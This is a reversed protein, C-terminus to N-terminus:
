KRSNYYQEEIFFSSLGVREVFLYGQTELYNKVLSDGNEINMDWEEVCIVRPRITIWDNSELVNLDAGEVDITLFTPESPLIKPSIDKLAVVKMPIIRRLRANRETQATIAYEEQTTSYVYPHIEYFDVDHTASGVLARIVNDRRRFLRLLKYNTAIPEVLIGSWGKRYFKYTNSGIVPWGAGIDIYSGHAEPLLQELLKDEGFQGFYDNRRVAVM